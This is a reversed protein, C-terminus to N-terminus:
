YWETEEQIQKTEEQNKTSLYDSLNIEKGQEVATWAGFLEHSPENADECMGTDIVTNLSDILETVSKNSLTLRTIRTILEEQNLTTIKRWVDSKALEAEHQKIILLNRTLQLRKDMQEFNKFKLKRESDYGEIEHVTLRKTLIDKGVANNFAELKKQELSCIEKSTLTLKANLRACEEKLEQETFSNLPNAPKRSFCNLKM